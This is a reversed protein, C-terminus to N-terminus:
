EDLLLAVEKTRELLQEKGTADLHGKPGLYTDFLAWSFAESRLTLVKSGDVSVDVFGEPLRTFELITGKKWEHKEVFRNLKRLATKGTGTKSDGQASRIRGLLARDFGHAIHDGGKDHLMVLRLVLSPYSVQMSTAAAVTAYEDKHYGLGGNSNDMKFVYGNKQGQFKKAPIFAPLDSDDSASEAEISCIAKPLVKDVIDQETKADKCALAAESSFYVAYSYARAKEFACLNLMCRVSSTVLWHTSDHFAYGNLTLPFKTHTVPETVFLLSDSFNDGEEMNAMDSFFTIVSLTGGAVGIAMAMIIVKPFRDVNSRQFTGMYEQKREPRAKSGAGSGTTPASKGGKVSGSVNGGKVCLYRRGLTGRRGLLSGFSVLRGSSLM